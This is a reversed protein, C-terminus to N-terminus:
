LVRKLHINCYHYTVYTVNLEQFSQVAEHLLSYFSNRVLLMCSLNSLREREM